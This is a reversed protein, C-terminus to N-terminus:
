SIIQRDTVRLWNAGDSFAPVKGSTEDSVMVLGDPRSSAPVTAKIITPTTQGKLQVVTFVPLTPNNFKQEIDDFYLQLRTSAIGENVITEGHDPKSTINTM